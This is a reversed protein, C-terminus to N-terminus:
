ITRLREVERAEVAQHLVEAPQQARQGLLERLATCGPIGAPDEAGMRGVAEWAKPMPAGSTDVGRERM